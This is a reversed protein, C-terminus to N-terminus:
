IKEEQGFSSCSQPGFPGSIGSKSEFCWFGAFALRIGGHTPSKSSIRREQQTTLRLLLMKGSRRREQATKLCLFCHQSAGKWLTALIKCYSQWNPLPKTGPRPSKIRYGMEVRKTGQDSLNKVDCLKSCLPEAFWPLSHTMWTRKRGLVSQLLQHKLLVGLVARTGLHTAVNHTSEM